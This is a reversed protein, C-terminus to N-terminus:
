WHEALKSGFYWKTTRREPAYSASGSNAPKSLFLVAGHPSFGGEGIHANTEFDGHVEGITSGGAGAKDPCRVRFEGHM